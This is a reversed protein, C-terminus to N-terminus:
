QKVVKLTQRGNNSVINLLYVGQALESTSLVMKSNGEVAEVNQNIIVKGNIDTLVISYTGAVVTMDLTFENNFPNPYVMFQNVSSTASANNQTNSVFVPTLPTNASDSATFLITGSLSVGTKYVRGTSANASSSSCGVIDSWTAGSNTSQNIRLKSRDAGALESSDYNMEFVTATVNSAVNVEFNRNISSGSMSTYPNHARTITTVGPAANTSLKLGLGAVNNNSLASGFTRTTTVSGSTGKFTNGAIESLMASSELTVVQGNLDIDGSSLFMNGKVVFGNALYLGASRNLTVNQMTDLKLAAIATASVNGLISLTGTAGSNKVNGAGTINGTSTGTAGISYNFGNMEINGNSLTTTNGISLNTGLSLGNPRNVTLSGPSSMKFNTIQAASGNGNIAVLSTSASSGGLLSGNTTIINGINNSVSGSTLTVSPNLVFLGQTLWLTDTITCSQTLRVGSAASTNLMVSSFSGGGNITQYTGTSVLSVKGNGTISGSNTIDRTNECTFGNLNLNTGTGVILYNSTSIDGLLSYNGTGNLSLYFYAQSPIPQPTNFILRGANHNLTGGLTLLNNITLSTSSAFNLTAGSNIDINYANAATNVTPSFTTGSPIKVNDIAKPVSNSAWNSPNSWDTSVTGTWDCPAQLIVKYDETEGSGFTTCADTSANASGTLRSRIRMGAVGPTVNSPITINLVVSDNGQVNNGLLTYESTDYVGNRNYDIWMAVIQAVQDNTFVFRYTNNARLNSTVSPSNSTFYNSWSNGNTNSCGTNLNNITGMKISNIFSTGCTTSHVPTCYFLMRDGAVTKIGPVKSVGNIVINEISGDVKNGMTASATTTFGFWFYNNGTTLSVPAFTFTNLGSVPGTITGILNSTSFTSNNGTYYVKINTIDAVNTLGSTKFTLSTVTLPSLNGSTVVRLALLENDTSNVAVSNFNTQIVNSSVYSMAVQNFVNINDFDFNFNNSTSGTTQSVLRIIIKQGSYASLDVLKTAFSTSASHNSSDISAVTTFSTGCDASVQIKVSDQSTLTVSGGTTFDTIKYEFQIATTATTTGVKPLTAIASLNGTWTNVRVGNTGGSGISATTAFGGTYTWGSPTSVGANFDQNYPVAQPSVVNITVEPVSDNIDNIDLGYSTWARFKYAGDTSMDFTNSVTVDQSAGPLLTGSSIVFDTFNTTSNNPLVCKSKVTVNNTAFDVTDYGLNKIRFTVSQNPGHTCASPSLMDTGGVDDKLQYRPEIMFKFPNSPAFDNWTTSGTPSAFYFTSDRIPTETQYAFGINTTLVQRVGCFFAGGKVLINPVDLVKLAPGVPAKFKASTWLNTSPKKTTSDMSWIGIQVTDNGTNFYVSIQNIYTSDAVKFKAIFDGTGGNFGVGGTPALSFDGYNYSNATTTLNATKTDNSTNQDAAVSVSVTNTGINSYEHQNFDVNISAGAALSSITASDTYSNAGSVTLYVKFNTMTAVSVNKVSASIIHPNGQDVPLRGMTYVTVITADNTLFATSEDAGKYPVTGSRTDNDIDNSISVSTGIMDPSQISAGTLHLDNGGTYSIGSGFLSNQERPNAANAYSGTFTTYISGIWVNVFANNTAKYYNFDINNTGTTPTSFWGALHLVNNVGGTRENQCINNKFNFISNVNSNNKIICTSAESFAAGLSPKLTGGLKFTNHYVNVSCRGTNQFRLCEMLTVSSDIAASLSIFNNNINYTMGTNISTVNMFIGILQTSTTRLNYMHNRTFNITCNAVDTSTLIGTVAVSSTFSNNHFVQNSDFTISSVGSGIALTRGSADQFQSKSFTINSAPTGTTATLDVSRNGGIQINNSFTVNSVAPGASFFVVNGANVATGNTLTSWRVIHNNAGSDLQITHSNSNVNTNSIKLLRSSGTGGARGDITVNASSGTFKIIPFGNISGTIVKEVTATDAPRITISSYSGANTLRATVTQTVDSNIRISITGTHLSGGNIATFAADLSSYTATSSSGGSSAVYIQAQSSIRMMLLMFFFLFLKKM